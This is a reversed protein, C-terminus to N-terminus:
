TGCGERWRRPFSSALPVNLKVRLGVLAGKRAGGGWALRALRCPFHIGALIGHPGREQRRGKGEAEAIEFGRHGARRLHDIANPVRVVLQCPEHGLADLVHLDAEDRPVGGRMDRDQLVIRGELLQHFMVARHCPGLELGQVLPNRAESGVGNLFNVVAQILLGIIERDRGQGFEGLEGKIARAEAGGFGDVLSGDGGLDGRSVELANAPLLGLSLDALNALFFRVLLRGIGFSNFPM